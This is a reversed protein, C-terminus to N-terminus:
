RSFRTPPSLSFHPCTKIKVDERKRPEQVWCIPEGKYGYVIEWFIKYGAERGGLQARTHTYSSFAADSPFSSYTLFTNVLGWIGRIARCCGVLQNRWLPLQIYCTTPYLVLKNKAFILSLFFNVAAFKTWFVQPLKLKGNEQLMAKLFFHSKKFLWIEEM